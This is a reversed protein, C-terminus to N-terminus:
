LSIYMYLWVQILLDGKFCIFTAMYFLHGRLLPEIWIFHQILPCSLPSRKIDIVAIYLHSCPSTYIKYNNELLLMTMRQKHKYIHSDNNVLFHLSHLHFLVFDMWSFAFFKLLIVNRVFRSTYMYSRTERNAHYVKM